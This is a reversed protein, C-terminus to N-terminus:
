SQAKIAKTLEEISMVVMVLHTNIQKLEEMSRDISDIIKEVLEEDNM